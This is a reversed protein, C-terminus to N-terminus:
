ISNDAQLYWHQKSMTTQRCVSDSHNFALASLFTSSIKNAIDNQDNDNM